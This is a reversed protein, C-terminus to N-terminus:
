FCYWKGCLDCEFNKSRLSDAKNFVNECNASLCGHYRPDKEIHKSIQIDCIKNFEVETLIKQADYISIPKGCLEANFIVYTSM